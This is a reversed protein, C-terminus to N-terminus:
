FIGTSGMPSSLPMSGVAGGAFAPSGMSGGMMMPNSVGGGMAGAMAQQMRMQMAQRQQAAQAAQNPIMSVSQFREAASTCSELSPSEGGYSSGGGFMSFSGGMSMGGGYQCQFMAQYTQQYLQQWNNWLGMNYGANPASAQRQMATMQLGFSANTLRELAAGEYAQTDVLEQISARAEEFAAPDNRSLALYRNAIREYITQIRRADEPHTELLGLLEERMGALRDVSARAVDGQLSDLRARRINNRTAAFDFGPFLARIENIGYGRRLDEESQVALDINEGRCRTNGVLERIMSDRTARTREAALRAADARSVHNVDANVVALHSPDRSPDEYLFGLHGTPVNSFDATAGDLRSLNVCHNINYARTGDSNVPGVFEAEQCGTFNGSSTGARISAMCARGLGNHDAIQFGHVTSGDEAVGSYRAGDGRSMTSNRIEFANMCQAPIRGRLTASRTRADYSIQIGTPFISPPFTAEIDAATLTESNPATYHGELASRIREVTPWGAVPASEVVIPTGESPVLDSEDALHADVPASPAVEPAALATEVDTSVRRIEGASGGAGALTEASLSEPRTLGAVIARRRIPSMACTRRPMDPIVNNLITGLSDSPSATLIPDSAAAVVQDLCTTLGRRRRIANRRAAGRAPLPIASEIFGRLQTARQALLESLSAPAPHAAAAIAAAEEPSFSMDPSPTGPTQAVALAPVLLMGTTLMLRISKKMSM